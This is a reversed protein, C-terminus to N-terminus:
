PAERTSVTEVNKLKNFTISKVIFKDVRQFIHIVGKPIHADYM